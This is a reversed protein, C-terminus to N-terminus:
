KCFFLKVFDGKGKARNPVVFFIFTGWIKLVNQMDSSTILYILSMIRYRIVVVMVEAVMSTCFLGLGWETEGRVARTAMILVYGNSSYALESPTQRLDCGQIM